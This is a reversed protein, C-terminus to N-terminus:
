SGGGLTAAVAPVSTPQLGAQNGGFALVRKGMARSLRATASGQQSAQLQADEEGARQERLQANSAQQQQASAQSMAKSQASAEYISAGASAGAVLLPILAAQPM